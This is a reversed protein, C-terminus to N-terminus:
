NESKQFGFCFALLATAIHYLGFIIIMPTIIWLNIYDVFGRNVSWYFILSGLFTGLLSVTTAMPNTKQNKEKAENLLNVYAGSSIRSYIYLAIFLVALIILFVSLIIVVSRYESRVLQKFDVFTYIWLFLINIVMDTRILAGKIQNLKRLVMLLVLLINVSILVTLTVFKHDVITRLFGFLFAFFSLLAFPENFKTRNTYTVYSIINEKTRMLINIKEEIGKRM